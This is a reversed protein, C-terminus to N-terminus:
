RQTQGVIDSVSSSVSVLRGTQTAPTVLPRIDDPQIHLSVPGGDGSAMLM